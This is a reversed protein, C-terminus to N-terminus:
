LKIIGSESDYKIKELKLQLKPLPLNLDSEQNIIKNNSSKLIGPVIINVDSELENEISIIEIINLLSQMDPLDIIMGLRMETVDSIGNFDLLLKLFNMEGSYFRGILIDPRGWLENNITIQDIIGITTFDVVYNINAISVSKLQDLTIPM